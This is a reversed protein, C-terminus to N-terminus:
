FFLFHFEGDLVTKLKEQFQQEKIKNRLNDPLGEDLMSEIEEYDIDNEVQEEDDDDDEDDDEM